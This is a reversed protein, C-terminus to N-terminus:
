SLFNQLTKKYVTLVFLRTANCHRLLTSFDSPVFFGLKFVKKFLVKHSVISQRAWQQQQPVTDNPINKLALQRTINGLTNKSDRKLLTAPRFTKFKILFFVRVCINEQPEQLVKLFVQKSFCRCVAAVVATFSQEQIDRVNFYSMTLKLKTSVM